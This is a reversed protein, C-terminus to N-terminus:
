AESGGIGSAMASLEYLASIYLARCRTPPGTGMRSIPQSRGRQRGLSPTGALRPDGGGPDTSFKRITPEHAFGYHLRQICLLDGRESSSEYLPWFASPSSPFSAPGSGESKRLLNTTLRLSGQLRNLAQSTNQSTWLSFLAQISRIDACPNLRDFYLFIGTGM